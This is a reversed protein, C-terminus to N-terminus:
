VKLSIQINRHNIQFSQTKRITIFIQTEPSNGFFELVRILYEVKRFIFAM